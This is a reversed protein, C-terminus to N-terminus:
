VYFVQRQQAKLHRQLETVRVIVDQTQKDATNARGSCSIFVEILRGFLNQLKLM